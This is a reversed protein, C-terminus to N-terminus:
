PATFLVAATLQRLKCVLHDFNYNSIRAKHLSAAALAIDYLISNPSIIM